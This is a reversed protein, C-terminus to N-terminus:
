AERGGTCGDPSSLLPEIRWLSLMGKRSGVLRREPTAGTLKWRCCLASFLWYYVSRKWVSYSVSQTVKVSDFSSGEKEELNDKNTYTVKEEEM